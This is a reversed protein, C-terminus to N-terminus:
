GKLRVLESSAIALAAIAATEARLIRNGLDAFSWGAEHFLRLEDETWGGEPGVALALDTQPRARSIVDRLAQSGPQNEALLIRFGGCSLADRLKSPSAIEPPASRRSQEAAQLAIRRWREVRKEAAKALHPNSRRSILPVIRAVDLETAKEVVWEMRDFRFISLLLTLSPSAPAPLFERLEFEVGQPGINVIRGRRVQNGAVIDFQQGVRARLVGTLRRAREGVLFARDAQVRDAIWRRRTM